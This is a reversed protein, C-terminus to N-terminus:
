LNGIPQGSGSGGYSDNPKYLCKFLDHWRSAVIGGLFTKNLLHVQKELSWAISLARGHPETFVIIEVYLITFLRKTRLNIKFSRYFKSQRFIGLAHSGRFQFLNTVSDNFQCFSRLVFPLFDSEYYPPLRPVYKKDTSAAPKVASIRYSM